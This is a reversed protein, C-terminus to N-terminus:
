PSLPQSYTVMFAWGWILCRYWGRGSGLSLPHKLQLSFLFSTFNQRRSMVHCNAMRSMFWLLQPLRCVIVDILTGPRIPPSAWSPKQKNTQKCFLMHFQSPSTNSSPPDLSSSHSFHPASTIFICQLPKMTCHYCRKSWFEDYVHLFNEFFLTSLWVKLFSRWM